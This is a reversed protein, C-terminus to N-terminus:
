PVPPHQAGRPLEHDKVVRVHLPEDGFAQTLRTNPTRELKDEILWGFTALPVALLGLLLTAAVGAVSTYIRLSLPFAYFPNFVTKALGGAVIALVLAWMSAGTWLLIGAGLCMTPGVRSSLAAPFSEALIYGVLAVILLLWGCAMLGSTRPDIWATVEETWRTGLGLWAIPAAAVEVPDQNSNRAALAVWLLVGALLVYLSTMRRALVDSLSYTAGFLEM